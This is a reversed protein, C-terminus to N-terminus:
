NLGNGPIILFGRIVRLSSLFSTRLFVIGFRINAYEVVIRIRDCILKKDVNLERFILDCREQLELQYILADM